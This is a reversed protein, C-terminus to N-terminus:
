HGGALQESIHGKDHLPIINLPCYNNILL